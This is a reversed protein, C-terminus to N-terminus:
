NRAHKQAQAELPEAAGRVIEGATRMLATSSELMFAVGSVYLDRQVEAFETASKCRLLDQPQRKAHSLSKQVVNLYAHQMRLWGQGLQSYTLTLAQVDGATDRTAERYLETLHVSTELLRRGKDFSVEALPMAAEAVAGLGSAVMERGQYIAQQTVDAAMKTTEKAVEIHQAGNGHAENTAAETNTHVNTEAERTNTARRTEPATAM